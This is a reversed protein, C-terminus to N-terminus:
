GLNAYVESVDDLEELAELFKLVGEKKSEEVEVVNKPEFGLSVREIKLGAKRLNEKVEELKQPSTYVIILGGEEEYDEAGSDIIALEVEEKSKSQSESLVIRGKQEFMWKVGGAEALKGGFKNFVQRIEGLTRNKNDSVARILVAVGEPGYGEIFFEELKGASEGTGRKIAREINEKPLNASKAAELAMRLRPNTEPNPGGLRVAITIDQALKSFLKGKRKDKLEKRFRINAWKSHGAM